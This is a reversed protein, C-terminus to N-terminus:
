AGEGSGASVRFTHGDPHRLHFERVGWPAHRPPLTVDCGLAVARAHLDDLERKSGMWWSMWVGDTADDGAFKPRLTGRSGQADRCLFMEAKGCSVSGFNAEGHADRDTAGEIRGGDNWAFGRKWGLAEFWAFSAPVSMVNLIPTIGHVIM